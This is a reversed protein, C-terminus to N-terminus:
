EPPHWPNALTEAVREAEDPRRVGRLVNTLLPRYTAAISRSFARIQQAVDPLPPANARLRDLRWAEIAAIFRKDNWWAPLLKGADFVAWPLVGREHLRERGDRLDRYTRQKEAPLPSGVILESGDDQPITEDSYMRRAVAYASLGVVDVARAVFEIREPAVDLNRPRGAGYPLVAAVPLQPFLTPGPELMGVGDDREYFASIETWRAGKEIPLGKPTGFETATTWWAPLSFECKENDVAPEGDGTIVNHAV